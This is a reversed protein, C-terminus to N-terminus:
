LRGEVSDRRHDPAKQGGGKRAWVLNDVQGALGAIEPCRFIAALKLEVQFAKRVRSIVRTALLSSGGIKFFNDHVGVQKANLIECWIRALAEETPTGPAAYPADSASRTQPAPLANRDLKGNTTLPFSDIFVFASPVMYAPLKAELFARLDQVGGSASAPAVYAVLRRDGPADERAMVFADRVAPDLKLAAEIEGPEIRFGSIKIQEDIRGLFAITGDQAYRGLDGTKYLRDGEVFPSAIFREATLEPRNLYGRAIGAGGIYIEGEAGRAVPRRQDDLLYIRTNWIPRGIPVSGNRPTDPTVEYVVMGVTAETPGYENILRIGPARDRWFAVHHAALAEGGIVFAGAAENRAASPRLQQLAQLHSPTLKVIAYHRGAELAEALAPLERDGEPLLDVRGGSVLPGLLSSVTADFAFSTNVPAGAGSTLRYEARAWNLYNVANRHEIMVGKPTGTSGSTYIVYALHSSVLGVARDPDSAPQSGWLGADADLDIVAPRQAMGALAADLAQRAPGNVLAMVPASDQLMFGLRQAPYAPDLPVYAGGAKLTALLGILVEPSRKMCIAVRADPLVGLARLHHALRNAVVNLEGYTLSRGEFTVAVAHPTRDAQQEFMEHVCMDRPYDVETRNWEVLMRCREAEVNRDPIDDSGDGGAAAFDHISDPNLTAM